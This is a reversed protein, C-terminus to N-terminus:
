SPTPSRPLDVAFICGKGPLDTVRITGGLAEVGKRCIALGLGMGTRDTGRQEYPQFLGDIKGGPLGGCEDEVEIVVRDATARARLTVQGPIGGSGRPKTFKCANQVLNAIISALIQHDVDVAVTIEVPVISLVIKNVTAALKAAVEIEEFVEAVLVRERRLLGAELRVEALSRDVLMRMQDLSRALLRGTSGGVGVNGMKLAEFSLFSTMLLNRMEHALFGLQEMGRGVITAERQRAYETVAEAIAVDLCLNLTKFDSTKIPIALEFALETVAQCIDGYDHVVQGITLGLRLLEGGHLTASAALEASKAESASRLTAGLQDLFLPVGHKIEIETPRPAPRLALKERARSIIQERHTTLFTDLV